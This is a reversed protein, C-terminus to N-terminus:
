AENRWATLVQFKQGLASPHLLQMLGAKRPSMGAAEDAMIRALTEATNKVLFAEQSRVPDVTFGRERLAQGLTDWCIHCTLDQAGPQALLDNSQQHHFYARVSGQPTERTLEHWTKGYDFAMFLGHWPADAIRAALADAARPLDLQYGAPCDQPLAASAPAPRSREVLQESSDLGVGLELWGDDTRLYRECPQADFLENSFVITPGEVRLDAGVGRAEVAAFPHPIDDLVTCGAEAGIEVFRYREPDAGHQRLQHLAAALVLEGFIPGLSSATYFHTSRDRGVRAQDRTYFGLQPHYLALEMFRAFSVFGDAEGRAVERFAAVFKPSPPQSAPQSSSGM